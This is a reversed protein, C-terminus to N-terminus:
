SRLVNVDTRLRFQCFTFNCPFLTQHRTKAVCRLQAPINNDNRSPANVAAKWGDAHGKTSLTHCIGFIPHSNLTTYILSPIPKQLNPQLLKRDAQKFHQLDSNLHFSLPRQLMYKVESVPFKMGDALNFYTYFSDKPKMDQKFVRGPMKYLPLLFFLAGVGDSVFSSHVADSLFSEQSHSGPCAGPGTPQRGAEKGM